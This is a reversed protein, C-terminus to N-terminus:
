LSVYSESVQSADPATSAIPTEIYAPQGTQQALVVPPNAAVLGVLGLALTTAVAARRRTM